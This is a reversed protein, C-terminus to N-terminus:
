PQPSATMPMLGAVSPRGTDHPQPPREVVQDPAELDRRLGAHQRVDGGLDARDLGARGDVEHELRDAARLLRVRAEADVERQELFRARGRQRQLAAGDAVVDHIELGALAARERGVRVVADVLLRELRAGVGDRPVELRQQDVGDDAEDARLVEVVALLDRAGAQFVM